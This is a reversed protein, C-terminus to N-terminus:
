RYVPQGPVTSIMARAIAPHSSIASNNLELWYQAVAAIKQFLAAASMPRVIYSNAGLEYCKRIIVEDECSSLVVIPTWVMLPDRRLRQLVSIDVGALEVGLLVLHPVDAEHGASRHARSMYGLSEEATCLWTVRPHARCTKLAHVTLEADNISDDVVLVAPSDISDDPGSPFLM